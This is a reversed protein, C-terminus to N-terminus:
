PNEKLYVNKKHNVIVYGKKFDNVFKLSSNIKFYTQLAEYKPNM